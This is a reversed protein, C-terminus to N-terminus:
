LSAASPCSRFEQGVRSAPWPCFPVAVRGFVFAPATSPPVVGEASLSQARATEEAFM